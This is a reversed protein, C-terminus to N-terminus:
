PFEPKRQLWARLNTRADSRWKWTAGEKSPTKLDPQKWYKKKILIKGARDTVIEVTIWGETIHKGVKDRAHYHRFYYFHHLTDGRDEVKAPPGWKDEVHSIHTYARCGIFFLILLILIARKM